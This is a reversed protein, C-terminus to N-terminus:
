TAAISTLPISAVIATGQGPASLVQFSGRLALVRERMGLLGFSQPRHREVEFGIGDDRISLELRRDITALDIVVHRAKAHRGVNTLAEQVLRFVATALPEEPILGGLDVRLDCELGTRACFGHVLWELAAELGLDDLVAPRLDASIRRVTRLTNDILGAMTDIKAAVAPDQCSIRRQLWEVDMRLGSLVQGLEDHLERALHTREEERVRQLFVSLEQLQQRSARLEEEARQRATRDQFAVVYFVEGGRGSIRTAVFSVPLPSGDKRAYTQDAQVRDGGYVLASFLCNDNAQCKRPDPAGPQLVQYILRGHLEAESWGLLREAEPNMFVLRWQSDMVLIGEGLASTIDRLFREQERLAQVAERERQRVEADRLERELAPVLRALNAKAIFDGAGAKMLEVAQEEGIHGSVVIVPTDGDAHARAIVDLASLAPLNYDTIVIDWRRAALADILEQESSVCLHDFRLGGERLACLLLEADDDCDEVVLVAIPARDSYVPHM